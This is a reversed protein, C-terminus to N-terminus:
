TGVLLTVGNGVVLIVKTCTVTVVTEVPIGVVVCGAGTGIKTHRTLIAATKRYRFRGQNKEVM